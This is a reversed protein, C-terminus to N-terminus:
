SRQGYDSVYLLLPGTDTIVQGVLLDPKTGILTLLIATTAIEINIKNKSSNFFSISIIHFSALVRIFNYTKNDEDEFYIM